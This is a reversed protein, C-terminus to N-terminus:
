GRNRNRRRARKRTRRRRGVPYDKGLEMHEIHQETPTGARVTMGDAAKYILVRGSTKGQQQLSVTVPRLRERLEPTYHKQDPFPEPLKHIMNM